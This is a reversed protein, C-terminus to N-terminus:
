TTTVDEKGDPVDQNNSADAPKVEKMSLEIDQKNSGNTADAPKTEELPSEETVNLKDTSDNADLKHDTTKGPHKRCFHLINIYSM